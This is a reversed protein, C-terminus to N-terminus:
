IKTFNNNYPDSSHLFELGLFPMETKAEGKCGSHSKSGGWLYQSSMRQSSSGWAHLQGNEEV